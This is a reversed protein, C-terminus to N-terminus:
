VLLRLLNMVYRALLLLLLLLLAKLWTDSRCCWASCYPLSRM